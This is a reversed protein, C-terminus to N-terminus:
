YWITVHLESLPSSVSAGSDSWSSWLSGSLLLLLMAGVPLCLSKRLLTVQEYLCSCFGTWYTTNLQLLQKFNVGPVLLAKHWIGMPQLLM